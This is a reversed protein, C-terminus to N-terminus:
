FSIMLHLPATLTKNNERLSDDPAFRYFFSFSTPQPFIKFFFLILLKDYNIAPSAHRTAIISFRM